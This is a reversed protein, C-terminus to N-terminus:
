HTREREEEIQEATLMQTSPERKLVLNKYPEYISKMQEKTSTNNIEDIYRKIEEPKLDSSLWRRMLYIYM